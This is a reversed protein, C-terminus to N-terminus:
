FGEAFPTRKRAQHSRSAQCMRVTVKVSRGAPVVGGEPFLDVDCCSIDEANIAAAGNGDGKCTADRNGDGKGYEQQLHAGQHQHHNSQQQNHRTGPSGHATVSMATATEGRARPSSMSSSSLSVTSSSVTLGRLDFGFEAPGASANYVEFEMEFPQRPVTIFVPFDLVSTTVLIARM